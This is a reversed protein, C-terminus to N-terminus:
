RRGKRDRKKANRDRRKFEALTRNLAEEEDEIEYHAADFIPEGRQWRMAADPATMAVHLANALEFGRADVKARNFGETQGLTMAGYFQSLLANMPVGANNGPSAAAKECAGADESHHGRCRMPRVEYVTCSGDEENLLPCPTQAHWRQDITMTRATDAATGIENAVSSFDEPSLGARLYEALLIAEPASVSVKMGRCCWSCGEKCALTQLVPLPVYSTRAYSSAAIKAIDVVTTAASVQSATEIAEGEVAEQMANKTM